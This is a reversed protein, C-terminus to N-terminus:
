RCAPISATVQRDIEGDSLMWFAGGILGAWLLISINIAIILAKLRTSM